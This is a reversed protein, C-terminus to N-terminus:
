PRYNGPDPDTPEKDHQPERDPKGGDHPFPNGQQRAARAQCTRIPARYRWSYHSQASTLPFLQNEQARSGSRLFPLKQVNGNQVLITDCPQDITQCIAASCVEVAGRFLVVSTIGAAVFVDFFTGRVGITSVPTEIHFTGKASNGTIFRFAGKAVRITAHNFRNGSVVFDDLSIISNEGVLVRSNDNLLLEGHSNAGASVQESAFVPDRAALRRNDLSANVINRIRLSKGVEEAASATNPSVGLVITVLAAAAAIRSRRAPRRNGAERASMLHISMARASM